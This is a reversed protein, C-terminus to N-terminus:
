NLPHLYGPLYDVLVWGAAFAAGLIAYTIM